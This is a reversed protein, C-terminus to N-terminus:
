QKNNNFRDALSESQNYKGKDIKNQTIKNAIGDVTKDVARNILYKILAWILSFGVLILVAVVIVLTDGM